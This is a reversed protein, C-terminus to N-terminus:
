EWRFTRAGVLAGAVLTAALVGFALMSAPQGAWADRLATVAYTLPLADAIRQMTLSLSERPVAAGSLFIMPFFVVFGAASAVRASRALSAVLFGLALVALAGLLYAGAFAATAAPPNLDYVLMGVAALVALGATALALQVVVQAALVTAPPLPTAGLRRLVGRERYTALIGPLTTLGATALIMAVYGPVLADMPGVGGFHENPQNGAGGNLFLLILPFALLFFLTAPERVMLKLEVLTLKAFARM